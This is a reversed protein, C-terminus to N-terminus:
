WLVGTCDSSQGFWRSPAPSTRHIQSQRLWRAHDYRARGVPTAVVHRRYRRALGQRAVKAGVAGPSVGLEAAIMPGTAGEWRQKLRATREEPWEDARRKRPVGRSRYSGRLRVGELLRDFQAQEALRVLEAMGALESRRQREDANWGASDVAVVIQRALLSRVAPQHLVADPLRTTVGPYVLRAWGQGAPLLAKRSPHLNRLYVSV